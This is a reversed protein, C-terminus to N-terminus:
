TSEDKKRPGWRTKRRCSPCNVLTGRRSTAFPSMVALTVSDLCRVHFNHVCNLHGIDSAAPRMPELGITCKDPEEEEQKEVNDIAHIM